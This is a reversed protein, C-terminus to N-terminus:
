LKNTFSVHTVDSTLILHQEATPTKEVVRESKVVSIRDEDIERQDMEDCWMVYEAQILPQSEYVQLASTYWVRFSDLSSIETLKLKSTGSNELVIDLAPKLYELSMLSSLLPDITLGAKGHPSESRLCRLYELLAYKEDKQFNELISEVNCGPKYLKALQQILSEDVRLAKVNDGACKLSSYSVFACCDLYDQFDPNAAIVRENPVFEYTELIPNRASKRRPAATVSMDYIQVGATQTLNLDSDTTLVAVLFYIAVIIM